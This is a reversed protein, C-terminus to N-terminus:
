NQCTSTKDKYSVMLSKLKGNEYEYVNCYISGDVPAVTITGTFNDPFYIDQPTMLANSFASLKDNIQKEIEDRLLSIDPPNGLTVVVEENSM